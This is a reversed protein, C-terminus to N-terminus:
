RTCVCVVCVRIMCYMDDPACKPRFRNMPIPEALRTNLDDLSTQNALLFPFGDAFGTTTTSSSSSPCFLRQNSSVVHFLPSSRWDVRIM